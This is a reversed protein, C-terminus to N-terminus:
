HSAFKQRPMPTVAALIGWHPQLLPFPVQPRRLTAQYQPSVGLGQPRVRQQQGNTGLAYGRAETPFPPTASTIVPGPDWCLSSPASVVQHSWSCGHFLCAPLLPPLLLRGSVRSPLTPPSSAAECDRCIGPCPGKHFTRPTPRASLFHSSCSGLM